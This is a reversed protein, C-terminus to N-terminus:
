HQKTREQLSKLEDHRDSIASWLNMPVTKMLRRGLITSDPKIALLSYMNRMGVLMDLGFRKMLNSVDIENDGSYFREAQRISLSIEDDIEEERAFRVCNRILDSYMFLTRQRRPDEPFDLLAFPNHAFRTDKMGTAFMSFRTINCGYCNGCMKRYKGWRYNFCSFTAKIAEKNPTTAIIEAKTKDKFPSDIRIKRSGITTLIKQVSSLVEPRTAQTSVTLGSIPPNIMMPGNEAICISSSNFIELFPFANMLFMTSRLQPYSPFVSGECFRSEVHFLRSNTSGLHNRHIEKAKGEMRTSTMSHVLALKRNKRSLNFVGCLSDCGGSFLAVDRQESGSEDTKPVDPRKPTNVFSIQINRKTLFHFLMELDLKTESWEAKNETEFELESINRESNEIFYLCAGMKM